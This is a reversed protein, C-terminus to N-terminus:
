RSPGARRALAFPVSLSVDGARVVYQTRNRKLVVGRVGSYPGGGLLTVVTGPSLREVTVLGETAPTATLGHQRQIQALEALYAPLMVAPQGARTWEFIARHDFRGPSCTSCSMVRSPRRHRRVVHGAPCRGTWAYAVGDPGDDTRKGDSGIALATRRWVEDHGHARGVLAHAIEHLLTNRVEEESCLRTLHRSLTIQRSSYRCAGFRARANDFRFTWDRLRHEALLDSALRHAAMLEM